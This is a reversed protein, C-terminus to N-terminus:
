RKNTRKEHIETEDPPPRTSTISKSASTSTAPSFIVLPSTLYFTNENQVVGWYKPVLLKINVTRDSKRVANIQPYNFYSVSSGKREYYALTVHVSCSIHILCRSRTFLKLAREKPGIGSYSYSSYALCNNTRPSSQNWLPQLVKMTVSNVLESM